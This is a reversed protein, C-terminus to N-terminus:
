HLAFQRSFPPIHHAPLFNPIGTNTKDLSHSLKCMRNETDPLGDLLLIAGIVGQTHLVGSIRSQQRWSPELPHSDRVHHTASMVAGLRVRSEPSQATGRGELAQVELELEM